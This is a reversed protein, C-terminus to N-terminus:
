NLPEYVSSELVGNRYTLRCRHRNSTPSEVVYASAANRQHVTVRFTQAIKLVSDSDMGPEFRSCLKSVRSEATVFLLVLFVAGGGLLVILGVLGQIAHHRDDIGKGPYQEKSAM